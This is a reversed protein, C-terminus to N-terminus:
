SFFFSIILDRFVFHDWPQSSIGVLIKLDLAGKILEGHACMNLLDREEPIKGILNFNDTTFGTNSCPKFKL